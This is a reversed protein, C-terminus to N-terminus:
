WREGLFFHGHNLLLLLVGLGRLLNSTNERLCEFLDLRDALHDCLYTNTGDQERAIGSQCARCCTSFASRVGFSSSSSSSSTLFTLGRMSSPPLIRPSHLPAMRPRSGSPRMAASALAFDADPSAVGSCCRTASSRFSSVVVTTLVM